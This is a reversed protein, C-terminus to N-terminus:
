TPSDELVAQLRLFAIVGDLIQKTEAGRGDEALGSATELEQIMRFIDNGNILSVGGEYRDPLIYSLVTPHKIYVSAVAGEHYFIEVDSLMTCAGGEKTEVEICIQELPVSGNRRGYCGATLTLCLVCLLLLMWRKM